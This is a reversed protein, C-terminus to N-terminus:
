PLLNLLVSLANAYYDAAALDLKGDDNFDDFNVFIPNSGVQFNTHGGFKLEDPNTTQNLLVMVTDSNFNSVAVDPRNDNNLLGVDLSIPGKM